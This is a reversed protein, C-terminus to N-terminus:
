YLNDVQLRFPTCNLQEETMDDGRLEWDSIRVSDKGGLQAGLYHGVMDYLKLPHKRQWPHPWWRAKDIHVAVTSLDLLSKFNPLEDFDAYLKQM